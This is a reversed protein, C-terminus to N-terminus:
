KSLSMLYALVDGKERAACARGLVDKCNRRFWKEVKAADTFRQPNAATAMPAIDKGTTAHRGPESPKTTHCTSCSWDNGHTSSFFRQGREASFGDFAPAAARAEAEYTKQIEAPTAGMVEFGPLALSGALLIAAFFKSRHM